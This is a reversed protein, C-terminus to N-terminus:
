REDAGEAARTVPNIPQLPGSCRQPHASCGGLALLLVALLTRAVLHRM